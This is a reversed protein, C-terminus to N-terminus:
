LKELKIVKLVGDKEINLFYLGAAIDNVSFNIQHQGSTMLNENWRKITKGFIDTLRFVYRGTQDTDLRLTIKDTLPNPYVSALLAPSDAQSIGVTAPDFLNINDVFMNQGYAAKNEFSLVVEGQGVYQNLWVSDTRWQFGAPTFAVATVNPATALDFGGKYYVPNWTQGCDTSVSVILTDSNVNSYQAYAVDFVLLASDAVTLDYAQTRMAYIKGTLDANFNDFFASKSSLAYGGVTSSRQWAGDNTASYMLWGTPLFLAGEFGEQLPMPTPGQVVIYSSRVYSKSGNSNTVTLTVDYIGGTNYLVSPNQLVSISPTAGPFDWAWSIPNGSSLDTFQVALGPCGYTTDATFLPDPLATSADVLESDWVGRGYYAVRLVNSATGNNYMMLDRMDAITPLGASYNLWTTMTDSHFWVSKATGAYISENSSYPDHILKIINVAPLNYSINVWTQGRDPSRYIRTGCSLYVVNTDSAVTTISARASTSSPANYINFVPNSSLANDCRYIKSNSTVVYVLDQRHDAVAVAKVQLGINGVQTWVPPTSGLNDTRYLQDFAVYGTQTNLPTFAYESNNTPAFPLDIDQESGNLSRRQGNEFYYTTTPNLYDFSMRSGWDGGRNTFWGGNRYYLEGNDQTGISIMDKTVPSQAAHYNETAALGNSRTSWNVGNNSSVWVGGDNAQWLEGVDYPNFVNHHMDTHLEAFWDTLKTWNVGGNVSKWVCHSGTYVIDANLPDVAITWNYNGQGPDNADYGAIDPFAQTKVGAFTQGGDDSRYITGYHTTATYYLLGLYIKDPAVASVGIRIGDANGGVPIPLAVQNWTEGMDVSIWFQSTTVAYIISTGALPKFAMDTFAGGSKKVIWNAGGDITKWIGDNTAAIIANPDNPDMLMELAMRNGIGANSPNWTSGGDVSKYIGYDTGYYNPDGTGLYLISDNTYDICVSACATRPLVDTGTVVWNSGNDRSIFLGGSASAAYVISDQVPHFKLQCVRGIGNIQGSVNVPFDDPGVLKWNGGSQSFAPTLVCCFILAIFSTTVEKLLATPIM